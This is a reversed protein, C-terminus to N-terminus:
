QLWQFVLSSLLKQYPFLITMSAWTLIHPHIDLTPSLCPGQTGNHWNCLRPNPRLLPTFSLGLDGVHIRFGCSVCPLFTSLYWSPSPLPHYLCLTSPRSLLAPPPTPQGQLSACAWTDKRTRLVTEMLASTSFHLWGTHKLIFLSKCTTPCINWPIRPQSPFPKPPPNASAHPLLPSPRSCSLLPSSSWSCSICLMPPHLPPTM